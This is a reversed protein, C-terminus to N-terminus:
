FLTTLIKGVMNKSLELLCLRLVIDKVVIGVINQSKSTIGIYKKGNVRNTHCYVTFTKGMTSQGKMLAFKM